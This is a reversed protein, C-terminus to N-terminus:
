FLLNSRFTVSLFNEKLEPRFPPFQLPSPRALRGAGATESRRLWDAEGTRGRERGFPDGASAWGLPWRM